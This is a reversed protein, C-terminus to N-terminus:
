LHSVALCDPLEETSTAYRVIFIPKVKRGLLNLQRWKHQGKRANKPKEALVRGLDIYELATVQLRKFIQYPSWPVKSLFKVYAILLYVCFAVWVQTMVANANTGLFSKIKLHQKVWKFFLEIQWRAKYIAAIEQASLHFLNTLYVYHKKSEPDRYGIRRLPTSLCEAKSGTMWITQDSTLGKSKDVRRRERVTYRANKKMRTVFFVGQRQLQDFWHYDLYGRDFTLISDPEYRQRRAVQIEHERGPTIVCFSPIQGEHDLMLHLKIAGKRQRFKAWDFVKLCLDIVTADLSYLKHRFQFGHSPAQKCCREYLTFFLERFIEHSRKSSADALTSRRVSTLGVHQLKHLSANVATVLDRLTHQGTLQGYFLAVFQKWCTFSRVGKDGGHRRVIAQFESRPIYRLLQNFVSAYKAM